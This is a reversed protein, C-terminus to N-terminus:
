LTQYYEYKKQIDQITGELLELSNTNEQNNWYIKCLLLLLLRTAVKPLRIISPTFLGITVLTKSSFPGM